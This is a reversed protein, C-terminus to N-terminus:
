DREAPSRDPLSSKVVNPRLSREEDLAFRAPHTGIAGPDGTANAEARTRFEVVRSLTEGM